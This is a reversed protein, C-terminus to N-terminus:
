RSIFHSSNDLPEMGLVPTLSIM